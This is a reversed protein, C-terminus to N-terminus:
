NNLIFLNLDPFASFVTRIPIVYTFQTNAGLVIGIPQRRIATYVLAGSDGEKTIPSFFNPDSSLAILGRIEITEDKYDVDMSQNIHIIYAAKTKSIAGKVNVITLSSDNETVDYILNDLDNPDTNTHELAILAVDVTNDMKGYRWTGIDIFNGYKLEVAKAGISGPNSFKNNTMVHNCTLIYLQESADSVICGVTGVYKPTLINSVFDGRAVQPKINGFGTIIRTRIQARSGNPKTYNLYSPIKHKAKDSLCIDVCPIRETGDLYYSPILKIVNTYEKKLKDENENIALQAIEHGSLSVVHSNLTQSDPLATTPTAMKSEFFSQTAKAGFVFAIIGMWWQNLGIDALSKVSGAWGIKLLLMCIVNTMMFVIIRMTSLGENGELLSPFAFSFGLMTIFFSVSILSPVISGNFFSTVILSIIGLVM